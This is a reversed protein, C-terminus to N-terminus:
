QTGEKAYDSEIRAKFERLEEKFADAYRPSVSCFRLREEFGIQGLTKSLATML